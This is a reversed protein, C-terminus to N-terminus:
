TGLHRRNTASRTAHNTPRDGLSGHLFPQFSRSATQTLSEYPDPSGGILYLRWGLVTNHANWLICGDLKFIKMDVLTIM